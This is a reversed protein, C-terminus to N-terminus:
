DGVDGESDRELMKSKNKKLSAHFIYKRPDELCGKMPNPCSWCQTSIEQAVGDTLRALKFHMWCPLMLKTATVSGFDFVRVFVWYTTREFGWEFVAFM